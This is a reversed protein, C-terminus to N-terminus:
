EKEEEDGDSPEEKPESEKEEKKAGKEAQAMATKEDVFRARSLIEMIPMDCDVWEGGEYKELGGTDSARVVVGDKTVFHLMFGGSGKEEQGDSDGSPKHGLADKVKDRDEPHVQWVGPKEPHKQMRVAHGPTTHDGTHVTVYKQDEPVQQGDGGNGNPSEPGSDTGGRQGEADDGGSGGEREHGKVPISEGNKGTRTFSRVTAKIIGDGAITFDVPNHQDVVFIHGQRTIVLRSGDPLISKTMKVGLEKLKAKREAAYKANEEPTDAHQMAELKDLEGAGPGLVKENEKIWKKIKKQEKPDNEEALMRRHESLAAAHHWWDMYLENLRERRWDPDDWNPDMSFDARTLMTQAVGNYHDHAKVTARGSYSQGELLSKSSSWWVLVNGDPDRFKHMVSIGYMGEVAHKFELTLNKWEQRKGVTGVHKSEEKEKEAVAKKGKERLYAPVISAAFGAHKSLKLYGRKALVAINWLYENPPNPDADLEDYLQEAWALSRKALDKDVDTPPNDAIEKAEKSNPKAAAWMLVTSATSFAEQDNAEQARSVFGGRERIDKAVMALFKGMDYMDSQLSDVDWFSDGEEDNLAQSIDNFIEAAAVLKEPDNTGLFDGLCQKGIQKYTGDEHQVIFTKKRKRNTSCHDCKQEGKRYEKPVTKGSAANVINGIEDGHEISGVFTWGKLSPAEGIVQAPFFQVRRGTDRYSSPASEGPRLALRYVGGREDTSEFIERVEPKGISLEIEAVGLRKARRNLKTLKEKLWELRPASVWRVPFPESIERGSLSDDLWHSHITDALLSAGGGHNMLFSRLTVREQESRAGIERLIKWKGARDASVFEKGLDYGIEVADEYSDAALMRAVQEETRSRKKQLKAPLVPEHARWHPRGLKDVGLYTKGSQSIAGEGQPRGKSQQKKVSSGGGGAGGGAPAGFLTLQEAKALMGELWRLAKVLTSPDVMHMRTFAEPSVDVARARKKGAPRVLVKGNEAGVIEVREGSAREYVQGASLGEPMAESEVFRLGFRHGYKFLEDEYKEAGVHLANSLHDALTTGAATRWTAHWADSANEFERRSARRMEPNDWEGELIWKGGERALRYPHQNPRLEKQYAQWVRHIHPHSLIALRRAGFQGVDSGEGRSAAAILSELEEKTARQVSMRQGRKEGYRWAGSKTRYGKGGRSGPSKVPTKGTFLGLQEAKLILRM